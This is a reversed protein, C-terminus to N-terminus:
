KGKHPKPRLPEGYLREFCEAYTETKGGPKSGVVVCDLEGALIGRRFRERRVAPDTTGTFAASLHQSMRKALWMEADFQKMDNERFLPTQESM